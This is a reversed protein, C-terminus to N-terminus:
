KGNIKYYLVEGNPKLYEKYKESLIKDTLFEGDRTREKIEEDLLLAKGVTDLYIIDYKKTPIYNVVDGKIINLKEFNLQSGVMDIIEQHKEVVDINDVKDIIPPIILGIGLGFILIDGRSKEIIEKNANIEFDTNNMINIDIFNKDYLATYNIQYESILIFRDGIKAKLKM